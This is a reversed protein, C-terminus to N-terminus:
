SMGFPDYHVKKITPCRCCCAFYLWCTRIKLGSHSSHQHEEPKRSHWCHWRLRCRLSAKPVGPGAGKM